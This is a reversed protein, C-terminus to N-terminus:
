FIMKHISFLSLIPCVDYKRGHYSKGVSIAFFILIIMSLALRGDLRDPALINSRESRTNQSTFKM